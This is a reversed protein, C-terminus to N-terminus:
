LFQILLPMGVSVRPFIELPFIDTSFITLSDSFSTLSQNYVTIRPLMKLYKMQLHLQQLNQNKFCTSAHM